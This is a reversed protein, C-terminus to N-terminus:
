CNKAKLRFGIEDRNDYVVNMDFTITFDKIENYRPKLSSLNPIVEGEFSASHYELGPSYHFMMSEAAM